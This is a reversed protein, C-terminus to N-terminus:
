FTNIVDKTVHLKSYKFLLNHEIIVKSTKYLHEFLQVLFSITILPLLQILYISLHYTRSIKPLQFELCFHQYKLKRFKLAIFFLVKHSYVSVQKYLNHSIIPYKQKICNKNLKKIM